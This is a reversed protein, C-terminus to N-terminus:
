RANDITQQIEDSRDLIESLLIADKIYFQALDIKEQMKDPNFIKTSVFALLEDVNSIQQYSFQTSIISDVSTTEIFDILNNGSYICYLM